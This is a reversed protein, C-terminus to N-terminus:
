GRLEEPIVVDELKLNSIYRSYEAILDDPGYFEFQFERDGTQRVGCTYNEDDVTLTYNATIFGFGKSKYGGLQPLSALRKLASLVAGVEYETADPIIIEHDFTVGAVVYDSIGHVMQATEKETRKKSKKSGNGSDSDDQEKQLAKNAERGLERETLEQIGKENLYPILTTADDKRVFSLGYGIIDGVSPLSLDSNDIIERVRALAPLCIMKGPIMEGGTGGGLLSAIVNRQRYRVMADHIRVLKAGESNNNNTKKNKKGKGEASAADEEGKEGKEKKPKPDMTGGSTLFLLTLYDFAQYGFHELIDLAINDRIKARITNPSIIPVDVSDNGTDTLVKMKNTYSSDPNTNVFPTITTIEGKFKAIM